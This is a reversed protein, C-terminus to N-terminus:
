YYVYKEREAVIQATANYDNTLIVDIGMDLFKEAEEPDDSWFVNCIIGNLGYLCAILVSFWTIELEFSNLAFYAPVFFASNIFTMLTASLFSAGRQKQYLKTFVFQVSFGLVAVIIMIYYQWM